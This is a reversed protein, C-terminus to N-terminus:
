SEGDVEVTEVEEMEDPEPQGWNGKLSGSFEPVAEVHVDYTARRRQSDRVIVTVDMAYDMDSFRREHFREAATQADAAYVAVFDSDDDHDYRAEFRPPCRHRGAFDHEGCISCTRFDGLPTFLM